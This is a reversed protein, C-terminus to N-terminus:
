PIWMLDIWQTAGAARWFAQEVAHCHPAYVAIRSIGSQNFWERVARLLRTGLGGQYTHTDLAFDTIVGIQEAPPAFLGPQKWGVVYGVIQAGHEGVFIAFPDSELWDCAGKSWAAPDGSFSAFRPDSQQLLIMKEQWLEALRPLDSSTARRIIVPEMVGAGTKRFESCLVSGWV